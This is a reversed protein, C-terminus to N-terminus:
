PAPHRLGALTVAVLRRVAAKSPLGRAATLAHLCYSALEDPAIDARLDGAEACEMLLDGILNRVQQRARAVQEDRHLGDRDDQQILKTKIM